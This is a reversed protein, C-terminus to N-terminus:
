FPNKLTKTKKTFGFLEEWGPKKQSEELQQIKKKLDETSNVGFQIQFTNSEFSPPPLLKTGTKLQLGRHIRTFKDEMRTIQPFRRCRLYSRISEGKQSKSLRDNEFLETIQQSKILDSLSITERQSIEILYESVEKQKSVSLHVKELLDFVSMRDQRSLQSLRVAVPQALDGRYVADRVPKELRALCAIDDYGKKHPPLGLLPFYKAIIEKPDVFQELKEIIFSKELPHFPRTTLNDYLAILLLDLDKIECPIVKCILEQIQLERAAHVRRFGCVIRFYGDSTKQVVPPNIVGVEKISRSLQQSYIQHHLLFRRDSIRIRNLNICSHQPM